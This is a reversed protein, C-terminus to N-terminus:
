GWLLIVSFRMGRSRVIVCSRADGITWGLGAREQNTTIARQEVVVRLSSNIFTSKIM